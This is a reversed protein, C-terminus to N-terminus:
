NLLTIQQDLAAKNDVTGASVLEAEAGQGRACRAEHDARGDRQRRQPPGEGDIRRDASREAREQRKRARAGKREVEGGGGLAAEDGRAVQAEDRQEVRGRGEDDARHEQEDGAREPPKARAANDTCWTAHPAAHGHAAEDRPRGEGCEMQRAERDEGRAGLM